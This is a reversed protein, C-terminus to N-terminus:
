SHENKVDDQLKRITDKLAQRLGMEAFFRILEPDMDFLVSASGDEHETINIVKIEGIKKELEEGM